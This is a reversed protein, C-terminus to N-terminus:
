EGGQQLADVKAALAAITRQQEQVVKTLVAVVDMPSVAKRDSKALLDPVDEAIFGVHQEKHEDAKYSYTVARLGQLAAIAQHTSLQAVNEKLAISSAQAITGAVQVNSDIRVGQKYNGQYNIILLEKNNQLDIDAHLAFYKRSANGGIPSLSLTDALISALEVESGDPAKSLKGKLFRLEGQIDGSVNLNGSVKLEGGVFVTGPQNPENVNPHVTLHDVGSWLRASRQNAYWVWREGATSSPNNVFANKSRDGFSFGAGPGGSHIENGEVHLQRQPNNTGVGINGEVVVAHDHLRIDSAMKVVGQDIHQYLAGIV